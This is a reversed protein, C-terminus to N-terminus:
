SPGIPICVHNRHTYGYGYYMYINLIIIILSHTLSNTEAATIAFHYVATRMM